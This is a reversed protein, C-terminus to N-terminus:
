LKNTSKLVNASSVSKKLKGLGNNIKNGVNSFRTKDSSPNEKSVSVTAKKGQHLRNITSSFSIPQTSQQSQRPLVSASVSHKLVKKVQTQGRQPTLGGGRGGGPRRSSTGGPKGPPPMTSNRPSRRPPQHDYPSSPTEMGAKVPSQNSKVKLFPNTDSMKSPQIISMDGTFPVARANRTSDVDMPEDEVAFTSNMNNRDQNDRIDCKNDMNSVLTVTENLSSSAVKEPSDEPISDYTENLNRSSLPTSPIEATERHCAWNVDLKQRKQASGGDEETHGADSTRKPTSHPSTAFETSASKIMLSKLLPAETITFSKDSEKRILPPPKSTALQPTAPLIEFSNNGFVRPTPPLLEDEVALNPTPPLSPFTTSNSSRLFAKESRCPPPTNDTLTPEVVTDPEQQMTSDNEPEFLTKQEVSKPREMDMDLSPLSLRALQAYFSAMLEPEQDSYQTLQGAWRLRNEMLQNRLEEYEQQDAQSALDHGRLCLHNKRLVKLTANIDYDQSELKTGMTSIMAFLHKTEARSELLDV